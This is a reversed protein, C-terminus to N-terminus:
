WAETTFRGTDTIEFEQTKKIIRRSSRFSSTYCHVEYSSDDSRCPTMEIINLYRKEGWWSEYEIVMPHLNSCDSPWAIWIKFLDEGTINM